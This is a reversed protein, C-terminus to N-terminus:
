SSPTSRTTAPMRPTRDSEGTQALRRYRWLAYLLGVAVGCVTILADADASNVAPNGAAATFPAAIPIIYVTAVLACFLLVPYGIAIIVVAVVTEFRDRATPALDDVLIATWVLLSVSPVYPMPSTYEIGALVLRTVALGVAGVAGVAAAVWVQRVGITPAAALACGISVAILLIGLVLGGVALGQEADSPSVIFTSATVMAAAVTSAAVLVGRDPRTAKQAAFRAALWRAALLGACALVAVAVTAAPGAVDLRDLLVDACIWTIGAATACLSILREGQVALIFGLVIVVISAFRLDRAWYTNNSAWEDHWPKVPETLPQFVTLGVTWLLAGALACLMGWRSMVKGPLSVM